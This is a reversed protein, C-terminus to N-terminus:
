LVFTLMRFVINFHKNFISGSSVKQKSLQTYLYVKNLITSALDTIATYFLLRKKGKM